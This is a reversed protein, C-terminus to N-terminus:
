GLYRQSDEDEFMTKPTANAESHPKPERQKSAQSQTRCQVHYLHILNCYHQRLKDGDVDLGRPRIRISQFIYKMIRP